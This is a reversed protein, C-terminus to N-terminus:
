EGDSSEKNRADAYAVLTERLIDHAQRSEEQKHVVNNLLSVAQCIRTHLMAENERHAEDTRKGTKSMLKYTGRNKRPLQLGRLM